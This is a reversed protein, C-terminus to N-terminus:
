KRSHKNTSYLFQKGSHKHTSFLIQKRSHQHLGQITAVSSLIMVVSDSDSASVLDKCLNEYASWVDSFVCSVCVFVLKIHTREFFVLWQFCLELSHLVDYFYTIYSNESVACVSGFAIKINSACVSGFAFKIKSACVSRFVLKINSACVSGFILKKLIRNV